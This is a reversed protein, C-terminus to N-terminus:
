SSNVVRKRATEDSEVNDLKNKYHYEGSGFQRRVNIKNKVKLIVFIGRTEARRAQSAM